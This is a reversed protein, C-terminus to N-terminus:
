ASISAARGVKLRIAIMRMTEAPAPTFPAIMPWVIPVVVAVTIQTASIQFLKTIPKESPSSLSIRLRPQIRAGIADEIHITWFASENMRERNTSWLSM